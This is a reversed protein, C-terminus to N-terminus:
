HLVASQTVSCCSNVTEWNQLGLDCHPHSQHRQCSLSFRSWSDEARTHMHMHPAHVHIHTYMPTCVHKTHSCPVGMACTCTCAHAHLHDHTRTSMYAHVHATLVSSVKRHTCVYACTYSHMQTCMCVHARLTGHTYMGARTCLMEVHTCTCMHTHTYMHRYLSPGEKRVLLQM